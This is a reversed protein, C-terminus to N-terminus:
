PEKADIGYDERLVKYIEQRKKKVAQNQLLGPGPRTLPKEEEAEKPTKKIKEKELGKIKAISQMFTAISLNKNLDFEPKKEVPEPM